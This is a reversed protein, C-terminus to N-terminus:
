KFAGERSVSRIATYFSVLNPLAKDYDVRSKGEKFVFVARAAQYAVVNSRAFPM